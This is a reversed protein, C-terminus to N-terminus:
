KCINEIIAEKIASVYKDMNDKIDKTDGLIFAKFYARNISKDIKTIIKKKLEYFINSNKKIVKVKSVKFIFYIKQNYLYRKYDFTNLIGSKKIDEVQGHVVILDNLNFNILYDDDFYCLVKEKGYIIVNLGTDNKRIERVRGTIIKTDDSYKSTNVHFIRFLTIIAILIFLFYFVFDCLLIKRLRLM